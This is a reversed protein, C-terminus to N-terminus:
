KRQDSFINKYSSFSREVDVSTIPVYKFYSTLASFEAGFDIEFNGNFIECTRWLKLAM